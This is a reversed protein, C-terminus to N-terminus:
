AGVAAPILHDALWRDLWAQDTRGEHSLQYLEAHDGLAAILPELWEPGGLGGPDGAAIATRGTVGAAHSAPDFLALTRAIADRRDPSARLTENIEEVPYADTLAGSELLRYFLLGTLQLAAFGPRRAATILALDDGVVGVRGADVRPYNLLFEAGRLCDAVIGRYVYSAADDIGLTLLGPYAAAFPQDALRQGRHMITLVAYRQRLEYAPVHNVSGYRPTEILGPFPGGGTPVSLYAFIRYPGISTIRVAYVTAFDTSRLPLPELEPAGPVTALERDVDSWYSGFDTM